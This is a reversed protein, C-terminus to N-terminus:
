FAGDTITLAKAGLRSFKHGRYSYIAAGRLSPLERGYGPVVISIYGDYVIRAGDDDGGSHYALKPHTHVQGVVQLGIDNAARVVRAMAVSSVNFSGITAHSEPRIAGVIM